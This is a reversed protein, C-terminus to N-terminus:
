AVGGGAFEEEFTQVSVPKSFYYGQFIDCGAQKLFDAQDKTEVGESIVTMGLKKAMKIISSLIDKSKSSFDSNRLFGMDIKLINMEVNKLTNLSSYGSGFDDMEITFGAAHLKQLIERHMRVDNMLVTETIEINLREPEIGYKKVLGTLFGHVDCYYFDKASINVSIYMDNGAAKWEALKKAAEEWMFQDLKHILGSKELVPIFEIPPIIGREPHIRRVLAEAGTARGTEANIQPQLFMVFEGNKLAEDFESVVRKDHIQKDMLETTYFAIPKKLDGRISDITLAAKDFMTQPNEYHDAVEYIGTYNFLRYNFEGLTDQIATNYHTVSETKFYEKPILVAFKDASIRGCISNPTRLSRLTKALVKLVQDGTKVGFLSNIVKFDMIDTVLFYFETSKNAHLLEAAHKFFAERNYLGTLADHETRFKEQEFRAIEDTTDEFKLYSVVPRQRSDRLIKYECEYTRVKNGLPFTQTLKLFNFMKEPYQSRLKKRYGEAAAFGTSGYGFVTRAQRNLYFCKGRNDFCAVAHSINESVLSIMSDLLSRNIGFYALYFAYSALFAYLLLAYNTSNIKFVYYWDAVVILMFMIGISIYKPRYFKPLWFTRFILSGFNQVVMLYNLFIHLYFPRYYNLSWHSFTGDTLFVPLLDFAHCFFINAFLNACDVAALILFIYTNLNKKRDAWSIETLSVVYILISYLLWLEAGFYVSALVLAVGKKATLTGLTYALICVLVNSSLRIITKQLKGRHRFAYVIFAILLLITTFNGVIYFNRM